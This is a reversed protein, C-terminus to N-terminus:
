RQEPVAIDQAEALAEEKTDPVHSLVDAIIHYILAMLPHRHSMGDARERAYQARPDAM